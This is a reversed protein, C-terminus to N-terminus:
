VIITVCHHSPSGFSRKLATSLSFSLSIFASISDLSFLRHRIVKFSQVSFGSVLTPGYCLFRVSFLFFTFKYNPRESYSVSYAHLKRSLPHALQSSLQLSILPLHPSPPYLRITDKQQDISGVHAVSHQFFKHQLIVRIDCLANLWSSFPVLEASQRKFIWYYM